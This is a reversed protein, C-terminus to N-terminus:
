DAAATKKLQDLMARLDAKQRAEYLPERSRIDDDTDYHHLSHWANKMLKSDAPNDINPWLDLARRSSIRGELFRSLLDIIIQKRSMTLTSHHRYPHM